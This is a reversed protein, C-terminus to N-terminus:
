SRGSTSLGVAIDGKRGLAEVQRSFIRDFGLDNGAATLLTSDATLAIAPLAKRDASYRVALETAIHQAQSASGGNGFLLIKNGSALCFVWAKLVEVCDDLVLSCTERAVEAQEQFEAYFFNEFNEFSLAPM